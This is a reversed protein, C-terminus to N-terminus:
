LLIFMFTQLHLYPHLCVQDVSMHDAKVQELSQKM